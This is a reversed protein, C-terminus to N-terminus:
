YRVAEIFSLDQLLSSLSGLPSCKLVFLHRSGRQLSWPLVTQQLERVTTHVEDSKGYSPDALGLADARLRAQASGNLWPDQLVWRPRLIPLLRVFISDLVCMSMTNGLLGFCDRM